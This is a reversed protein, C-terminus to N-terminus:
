LRNFSLRARLPPLTAVLVHPPFANLALNPLATMRAHPLIAKGYTRRVGRCDWFGLERDTNAKRRTVSM